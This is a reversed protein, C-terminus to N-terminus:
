AVAPRNCGLLRLIDGFSGGVPAGTALPDFSAYQDISGRQRYLYGAYMVTALKVDLSPVTTLSDTYGSEQRRRWAFQNAAGVAMTLLDFDASPGTVVFGLWDEADGNTIWTCVPTYTLTGAATGRAVDAVNLAFAVQNPILQATDYTYDGQEDPGLFFFEPCATVVHTGNFTANGSITINVGPQIPTGTLTAVVAVGGTVQGHTITYAAV